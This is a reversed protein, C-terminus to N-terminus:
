SPISSQTEKKPTPETVTSTKLSTAYETCNQSTVLGGWYEALGQCKWTTIAKSEMLSVLTFFCLANDVERREPLSIMEKMVVTHLPLTEWGKDTSMVLNSLRYIENMLGKQVGEPGEWVGDEEAVKKLMLYAIKSSALSTYERENLRSHAKAIVDFYKEFVEYTVPTSHLMGVSTKLVVNLNQDLKM